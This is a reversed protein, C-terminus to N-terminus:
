PAVPGGAVLYPTVTVTGSAGLFSIERDPDTVVIHETQGANILPCDSDADTGDARFRVAETASVRALFCGAPLTVVDANADDTLTVTESNEYDLVGLQAANDSGPTGLRVTEYISHRYSTPM